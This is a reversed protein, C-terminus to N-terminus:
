YGRECQELDFEDSAGGSATTVRRAQQPEEREERPERKPKPASREKKSDKAAAWETGISRFADFEFVSSRVWPTLAEASTHVIYEAWETLPSFADEAVCDVAVEGNADRSLWYVRDVDPALLARLTDRRLPPEVGASCPIFLNGIGMLPVLGEEALAIQPASGRGTRARLLLTSDGTDESKVVAFLLREIIDDPM